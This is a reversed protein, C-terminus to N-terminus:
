ETTKSAKNYRYATQARTLGLSRGAESLNGEAQIVAEGIIMNELEELPLNQDLIQRVFDRFEARQSHTSARNGTLGGEKNLVSMTSHYDEQSTFLHSLDIPANNSALIVAREIINELERINGPYHYNFLADVARETFGTVNRKHKEIYKNLFVEMLLPIDDRRERLPPIRIPFVNLRFWLDERFRKEDVEEKLDVNTAAIVRVDVNRIKEDGVREIEGDQLARLLKGQATLTLTGVEDLFITGNNAREFRGARSTSAGTYAGKEVGFLESEILTDPIAACNLAIFPKEKRESIEHLTKAFAGKGVGTEGLFLVTADTSAVKQLLHCVTQFGSSAGVLSKFTATRPEEQTESQKFSSRVRTSTKKHPAQYNEGQFDPTLYQIGDIDDWDRLPKGVVRCHEAGMARCEVEKYLIRKGMFRTSHGCAYGILNWCVPDTSPPFHKLHADVEASDRWIFETHFHGNEVDIDLKVPEVSVVGELAHLAPGVAMIDLHSANPRIQTAMEADTVGSTYGMRTLIGRAEEIGYTEIMDKRLAAMTVVHQLIMRQTGLWIRGDNPTFRLQEM